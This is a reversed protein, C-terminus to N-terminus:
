DSLSAGSDLAAPQAEDGALGLWRLVRGRRARREAPADGLRRRLEALEAVLRQNEREMIASLRGLTELERRENAALLEATDLAQRLAGIEQEKNRLLERYLEAMRELMGTIDPPVRPEPEIVEADVAAPEDDWATAQPPEPEIAEGVVRERAPAAQEAALCERVYAFGKRRKILEAARRLVRLDEDVYRRERAEGAAPSLWDGFEVTWKRLTAPTVGLARAAEASAHGDM